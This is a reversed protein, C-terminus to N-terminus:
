EPAIALTMKWNPSNVEALEFMDDAYSGTLPVTTGFRVTNNFLTFIVSGSVISGLTTLNMSSLDITYGDSNNQCWTSDCGQKCILDDQNQTFNNGQDLTGQIRILGPPLKVGNWSGGTNVLVCSRGEAISIKSTTGRLLTPMTALTM